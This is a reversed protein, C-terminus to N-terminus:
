AKYPRNAYRHLPEARPVADPTADINAPVNADPGDGALYGGSAPASAPATRQPASGCAVLLLAAATMLVIKPHM